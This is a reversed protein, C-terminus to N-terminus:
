RNPATDDAASPHNSLLRSLLEVAEAEDGQVLTEWWGPPIEGVTYTIVVSGAAANIRVDDIGPIEDLLLNLRDVSINGLETFLRAAIRMRVRGPVHHVIRLHRRLTLLPRIDIESM